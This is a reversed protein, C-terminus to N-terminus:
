VVQEIKPLSISELERGCTEPVVFRVFILTVISLTGYVAFTRAIGLANILSLFTLSVAFNSIGSFLTGAAVGRGRVRLPFVEAVLIWVIAGLSFAFCAIYLM